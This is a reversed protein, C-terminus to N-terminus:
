FNECKIFYGGNFFHKKTPQFGFDNINCLEVSPCKEGLQYCRYCAKYKISYKEFIIMVKDNSYDLAIQNIRCVFNLCSALIYDGVVYMRGNFQVKECNKYNHLQDKFNEHLPSRIAKYDLVRKLTDTEKLLENANFFCIKKGLSYCLNIRNFCVKAYAKMQQHKSEFRMSWLYKVPGTNQIATAYHLLYHGKPPLGRTKDVNSRFLNLFKQNHSTILKRLKILDEEAFSTKLVMDLIDTMILSFRFLEHNKPLIPEMIFPLFKVLTMMERAHCRISENDLHSKTVDELLYHVEHSGYDFNNKSHNFQALTFLHSEIGKKLIGVLDYGYIGVLLDHLLDLVINRHVKFSILRNLECNEVVGYNLKGSRSALNAICENYHEETRFLKKNEVCCTKSDSLCMFCIRCFYTSTPSTYGMNLNLGLNDGLFLVPAIYIRKTGILLGNEELPRIEDTLIKLLKNAGSEKIDESKALM